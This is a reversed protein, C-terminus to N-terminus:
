FTLIFSGYSLFFNYYEDYLQLFDYELFHKIVINIVANNVIAPCPLGSIDM